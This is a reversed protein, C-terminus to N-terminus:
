IEGLYKDFIPEIKEKTSRFLFLRYYKNHSKRFIKVGYQLQGVDKDWTVSGIDDWRIFSTGPIAIGNDGCIIQTYHFTFMYIILYFATMQLGSKIMDYISDDTLVIFLFLLTIAPILYLRFGQINKTSKNELPFIRLNNGANKKAKLIVARQIIFAIFTILFYIIYLAIYEETENM